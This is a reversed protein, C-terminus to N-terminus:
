SRSCHGLYLDNGSQNERGAIVTTAEEINLTAVAVLM